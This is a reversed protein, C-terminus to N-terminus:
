KTALKKSKLLELSNLIKFQKNKKIPAKLTSYIEPNEPKAVPMKYLKTIASDTVAKEADTVIPSNFKLLDLSDTKLTEVLSTQASFLGSFLLFSGFIIKM